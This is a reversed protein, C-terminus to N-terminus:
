WRQQAYRGSEAIAKGRAALGNASPWFEDAPEPSGNPEPEAKEQANKARWDAKRTRDKRRKSAIRELERKSTQWSWYTDAIRYNGEDDHEVLGLEAFRDIEESRVVMRAREPRFAGDSVLSVVWTVLNWFARFEEGTLDAQLVPDTLMAHKLRADLATGTIGEITM